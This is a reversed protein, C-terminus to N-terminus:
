VAGGRAAAEPNLGRSEGAHHRLARPERDRTTFHVFTEATLSKGIQWDVEELEEVAAETAEGGAEVLLRLRDVEAQRGALFSAISKPTNARIQDAFASPM